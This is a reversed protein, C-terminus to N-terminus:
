PRWLSGGGIDFEIRVGVATVRSASRMRWWFSFKMPEMLRWYSSLKALDPALIPSVRFIRMGLLYVTRVPLVIAVCSVASSLMESCTAVWFPTSTFKEEASSVRDSSSKELRMRSGAIATSAALISYSAMVM